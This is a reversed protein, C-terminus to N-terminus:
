SRRRELHWDLVAGLSGYAAGWIHANAIEMVDNRLGSVVVAGPKVCGAWLCIYYGPSGHLLASLLGILGTVM